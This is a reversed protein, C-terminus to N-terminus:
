ACFKVPNYISDNLFHKPISGDGAGGVKLFNVENM